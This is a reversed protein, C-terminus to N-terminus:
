DTGVLLKPNFFKKAEKKTPDEKKRSNPHENDIEMEKMKTILETMQAFIGRVHLEEIM